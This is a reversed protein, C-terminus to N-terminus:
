SDKRAIKLRKGQLAFIFGQLSAFHLLLGFPKFFLGFLNKPPPVEASRLQLSFIAKSNRFKKGVFNELQGGSHCVEGPHAPVLCVCVFM